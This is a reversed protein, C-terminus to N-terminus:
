IGADINYLGPSLLTVGCVLIKHKQDHCEVVQKFYNHADKLHLPMSVNLDSNSSASPGWHVFVSQLMAINLKASAKYLCLEWMNRKDHDFM